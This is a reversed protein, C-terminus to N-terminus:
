FSGIHEMAITVKKSPEEDQGSLGPIYLATVVGQCGPSAQRVWFIRNKHVRLAESTNVYDSM